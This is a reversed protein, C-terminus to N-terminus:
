TLLQVAVISVKCLYMWLYMYINSDVNFVIIIFSFHQSSSNYAEEKRRLHNFFPINTHATHDQLEIYRYAIFSHSLVMIVASHM